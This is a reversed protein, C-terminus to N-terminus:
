GISSQNEERVAIHGMNEIRIFHHAHESQLLQNIFPPGMLRNLQDLSTCHRTLIDTADQIPENVALLSVM